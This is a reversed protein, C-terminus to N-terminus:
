ENTGHPIGKADLYKKFGEEFHQHADPADCVYDRLARVQDTSDKFKNDNNSSCYRELGNAMFLGDLSHTASLGIWIVIFGINLALSALVVLRRWSVRTHGATLLKPSNKTKTAMISVSRVKTIDCVTLLKVVM